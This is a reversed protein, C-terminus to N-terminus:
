CRWRCRVDSLQRLGHAIWPLPADPMMTLGSVAGGAARVRARTRAVLGPPPALPIRHHRLVALM